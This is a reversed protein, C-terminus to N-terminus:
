NCNIKNWTHFSDNKGLEYEPIRRKMKKMFSYYFLPRSHLFIYYVQPICDILGTKFVYICGNHLLPASVQMIEKPWAHPFVFDAAGIVFANHWIACFQVSKRMWKREVAQVGGRV